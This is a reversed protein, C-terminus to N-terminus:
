LNNEIEGSRIKSSSIGSHDSYEENYVIIPELISVEEVLEFAEKILLYNTHVNYEDRIRLFRIFGHAIPKDLKIPAIEWKQRWLKDREKELALVEKSLKEIQDSLEQVETQKRSLEKSLRDRLALLQSSRHGLVQVRSAVGPIAHISDSPM